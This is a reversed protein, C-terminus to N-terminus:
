HGNRHAVVGFGILGITVAAFLEMSNPIYWPRVPSPTGCGPFFIAGGVAYLPCPRGQRASYTLEYNFWLALYFVVGCILIVTLLYWVFGFRNDPGFSDIFRWQLLGLGCITAAYLFTLVCAVAVSVMM